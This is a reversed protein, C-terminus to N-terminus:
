GRCPAPPPRPSCGQASPPAGKGTRRAGPSRRHVVPPRGHAAEEEAALFAPEGVGVLGHQRPERLLGRRREGPGADVLLLPPGPGVELRRAAIDTDCM